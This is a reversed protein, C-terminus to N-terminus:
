VGNDIYDRFEIPNKVVTASEQDEGWSCCEAQEDTLVQLISNALIQYPLRQASQSGSGTQKVWIKRIYYMYSNIWLGILVERAFKELGVWDGAKFYESVKERVDVIAFSTGEGITSASQMWRGALCPDNYDFQDRCMPGMARKFLSPTVSSMGSSELKKFEEDAKKIRYIYEPLTALIDEFYVRVYNNEYGCNGKGDGVYDEHYWKNMIDNFIKGHIQVHTVTRFNYVKKIKSALRDLEFQQSETLGKEAALYELERHTYEDSDWREHFEIGLRDENDAEFLMEIDFNEKNVEIDHCSNPGQGFKYLKERISEVVINLGFGHCDEVAGYDNYKGYFPVPCLEYLANNHCFSKEHNNKALMFVVVPEGATIHLNSIACTGNWYGM